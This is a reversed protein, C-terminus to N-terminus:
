WAYLCCLNSAMKALNKVEKEPPFFSLPRLHFVSRYPSLCIFVPSLCFFICRRSELRLRKGMWFGFSVAEKKEVHLTVLSLSDVSNLAQLYSATLFVCSGVAVPTLRVTVRLFVALM